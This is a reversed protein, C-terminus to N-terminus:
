ARYELYSTGIRGLQGSKAIRLALAKRDHANLKIKRAQLYLSRMDLEGSNTAMSILYNELPRRILGAVAKPRLNRDAESGIQAAIRAFIGLKQMSFALVTPYENILDIPKHDWGLVNIVHQIYSMKRAIVKPDYGLLSPQRNLHDATIGM